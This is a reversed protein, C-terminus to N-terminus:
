SIGEGEEEIQIELLVMRAAHEAEERREKRISCIIQILLGMGAICLGLTTQNSNIWDFLTGAAVSAGGGIAVTASAKDIM